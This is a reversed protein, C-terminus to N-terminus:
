ILSNIGGTGVNALILDGYEKLKDAGAYEAEKERLHELSSELRAVAGAFVKQAEARLTELSLAAGHEAYWLDIKENFSLGSEVFDQFERVAYEKKQNESPTKSHTETEPRYLGGSIEGRKPLRRMADLIKGDDDTLLVNAANSWLRIYLRFHVSSDEGSETDEARKKLLFRVIRDEGLQTVEEIRANTIKSKLFEAFRLPKDNKPVARKTAHLRCAGPATIILITQAGRHGFLSLSLTNFNSQIIKQIQAGRLDLESLILDIEKWNLSV